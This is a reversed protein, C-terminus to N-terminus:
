RRFETGLGRVDVRVNEAAARAVALWSKWMDYFRNVGIRALRAAEAFHGDAVIYAMFARSIEFDDLVDLLERVSIQAIMRREEYSPVGPLAEAIQQLSFSGDEGVDCKEVMDRAYLMDEVKRYSERMPIVRRVHFQFLTKKTTGILYTEMAAMDLEPMADARKTIEAVTHHYADMADLPFFYGQEDLKRVRKNLAFWVKPPIRGTYKSYAVEINGNDPNRQLCPITTKIIKM